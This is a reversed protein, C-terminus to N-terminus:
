DDIAEPFARCRRQVELAGALAEDVARIGLDDADQFLHGYTDMTESVTAHGLRAQIVKPQPEGRDPGLRLLPPPRPIEHRAGGRPRTSRVERRVKESRAGRSLHSCAGPNPRRSTKTKLPALTNNQAQELVEIRRRVVIRPGSPSSAASERILQRELAFQPATM